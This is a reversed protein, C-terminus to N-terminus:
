FCRACERWFVARGLNFSEEVILNRGDQLFVSSCKQQKWMHKGEFLTLHKRSNREIETVCFCSSEMQGNASLKWKYRNLRWPPSFPFVHWCWSVSVWVQKLSCSVNNISTVLLLFCISMQKTLISLNTKEWLQLSWAVVFCVFFNRLEEELTSVHSWIRMWRFALCCLDGFIWDRKVELLLKRERLLFLTPLPLVCIECKGVVFTNKKQVLAHRKFLDPFVGAFVVLSSCGLLYSCHDFVTLM